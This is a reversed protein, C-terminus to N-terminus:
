FTTVNVNFRIHKELEESFEGRRHVATAPKIDTPEAKAGQRWAEWSLDQFRFRETGQADMEEHDQHEDTNILIYHRKKGKLFHFKRPVSLRIKSPKQKKEAM